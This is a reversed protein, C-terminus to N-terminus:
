KRHNLWFAYIGAIAYIIINIIFLYIGAAIPYPIKIMCRIHEKLKERM